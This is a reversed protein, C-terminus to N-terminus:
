LRPLLDRALRAPLRIPWRATRRLRIFVSIEVSKNSVIATFRGTKQDIPPILKSPLNQIWWPGKPLLKKNVRNYTEAM